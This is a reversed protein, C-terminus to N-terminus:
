ADCAAHEVMWSVLEPYSIGLYKAQEPALSLATMGPQTNIELLYLKSVDDGKTDDYRFDCRSVGRCGLTQHAVLAMRMAEKAIDERLPAPCLHVTVGDTYKHAYDYFGGDVKLETVAMARDGMVAVTLERGQIFEECLVFEGYPWEIGDFPRANSSKTIIQVGVSSGENAPKVVYPRPLPDGKMVESKNLLVGKPCRLGAEAFLRKATPKDMAIASAMLGSHTYPIGVYNLIGQINGDEVWRGHLANFLVDPKQAKIAKLLAPLDRTV